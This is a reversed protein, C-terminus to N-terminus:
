SSDGLLRRTEQPDIGILLAITAIEYAGFVLFLSQMSFAADLTGAIRAGIGNSVNLLAMYATFQTAAVPPWAISMFMAFMAVQLIAATATALLFLATVVAPNSWYPELVAHAFWTAALLVVAATVTRKSGLWSAIGGGCICGGLGFWVSYNGELALYDESSWNLQRQLYAPWFVLHANVAVLSSLALLGAVWSSRVSFARALRRFLARVNHREDRDKSPFSRRNCPLLADGASERFCLPLTAIVLLLVVQLSAATGIGYTLLLGGLVSAGIFQGAYSSAFMFGNAVGREKEPLLDVALADVSVDQLAAFSNAILILLGLGRYSEVLHPAFFITSLSVLLGSQAFLIWPRRRGMDHYRFRDIIPGWAWKLAWPWSVLAIMEGIADISAGRDILYTKLGTRVFGDPIGQAAYLACLTALGLSRNQDLTFRV